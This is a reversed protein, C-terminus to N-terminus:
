VPHKRKAELEAPRERIRGEDTIARWRTAYPQGTRRIRGATELERLLGLM